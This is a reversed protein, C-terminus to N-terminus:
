SIHYSFTHTNQAGVPWPKIGTRHGLHHQVRPLDKAEWLRRKRLTMTLMLFLKHTFQMHSARQNQPMDRRHWAQGQSKGQTLSEINCTGRPSRFLHKSLPSPPVKIPNRRRSWLLQHGERSVGMPQPVISLLIYMSSLILAGPAWGLGPMLAVLLLGPASGVRDPTLWTPGQVEHESGAIGLQCRERGM